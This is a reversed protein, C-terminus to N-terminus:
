KTSNRCISEQYIARYQETMKEVSFRQVKGLAKQAMDELVEPADWLYNIYEALGKTDGYEVGFCCDEMDLYGATKTRIVPVGMAFAEVNVIGFGEQKSPLVMLDSISLYAQGKIYGPYILMDELGYKKACTEIEQKYEKNEGPFIVKLKQKRDQSLDALAKLLYLHGKVPMLRGYLLIVKDDKEIGLKERLEQQEHESTKIFDELHSGLNVIRVKDEPIKFTNVLFDRGTIGEAVAFEGYRTTLRYLFSSPIPVLHNSWIYKVKRHFFCYIAVYLAPIRNQAHIIDIQNKKVISNIKCYNKIMAIPSKASFDIIHVEQNKLMMDVGEGECTGIIVRDGAKLLGESLSKVCSLVGGVESDKVLMLINM